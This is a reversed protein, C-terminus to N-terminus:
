CIKTEQNFLIQYFDHQRAVTQRLDNLSGSNHIHDNAFALRQKDSLQNAIIARIQQKNLHSRAMVREIRTTEDATVLLIREVLQRFVSDAHLTPLEILGYLATHQTQQQQIEAFIEPLLISELQQKATPNSFVLQRIFDRNLCGSDDLANHGFTDAIRQLAYHNPTQTIQRNIADADLCPVGLKGFLKAVTSKGSGIGGTLAIWHTKMNYTFKTFHRHNEPQWQRM